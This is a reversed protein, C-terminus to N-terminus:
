FSATQVPFRYQMQVWSNVQNSRQEGDSNQQLSVCSTIYKSFKLALVRAIICVFANCEKCNKLFHCSFKVSSVTRRYFHDAILCTSWGRLGHHVRGHLHYQKHATQQRLVGQQYPVKKLKELSLCLYQFSLSLFATM